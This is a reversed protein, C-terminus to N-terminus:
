SGSGSCWREVCTRVSRVTDSRLLAVSVLPSRRSRASKGRLGFHLPSVLPISHHSDDRAQALALTRLAEREGAQLANRRSELEALKADREQRRRSAEEAARRLAEERERAQPHKLNTQNPKTQHYTPLYAPPNVARVDFILNPDM